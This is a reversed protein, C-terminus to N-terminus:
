KVNGGTASGVQVPSATAVSTYASLREYFDLVEAVGPLRKATVVLVRQEHQEQGTAQISM